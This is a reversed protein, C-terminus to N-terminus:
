PLDTRPRFVPVFDEGAAEFLVEVPMGGELEDLACGVTASVIRVGPAEVPEVLVVDYPLRDAFAPIASQNVFVYSYITGKGSVAKWSWKMSHCSACAPKAPLSFSGCNDCQALRLEGARTGEFFGATEDGVVPAPRVGFLRSAGTDPGTTQDPSM